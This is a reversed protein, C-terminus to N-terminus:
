RNAIAPDFRLTLTAWDNYPASGLENYYPACVLIARYASEAAARFQQDSNMRSSNQIEANVVSGDPNLRIRIEVLLEGAGMSGADFNWCKEVARRMAEKISMSLNDSSSDTPIPPTVTESGTPEIEATQTEAVNELDRLLDNFADEEPEEQREEPVDEPPEPKAPPQEALQVEEPEPEPEPEEEEVSEDPIPEPVVEEPEQVPVEEVPQPEPPPTPAPPPPQEEAQEQVDEPPTPAEITEEAPMQSTVESINEVMQVPIPTEIVVSEWWDPLGVYALVFFAIHMLTSFVIASRQM